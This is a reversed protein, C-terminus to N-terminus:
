SVKGGRWDDLLDKALQFLLGCRRRWLWQLVKRRVTDKGFGPDGESLLVGGGNANRKEKKKRKESKTCTGLM